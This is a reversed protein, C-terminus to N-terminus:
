TTLMNELTFQDGSKHGQLRERVEVKKAGKDLVHGVRIGKRPRVRLCCQCLPSSDPLRYRGYVFFPAGSVSLVVGDSCKNEICNTQM